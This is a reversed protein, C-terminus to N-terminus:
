FGQPREWVISVVQRPDDCEINSQLGNQNIGM